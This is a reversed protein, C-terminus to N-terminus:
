QIHSTTQGSLSNVTELQELLMLQFILPNSMTLNFITNIGAGGYYFISLYGSPNDVDTYAVFLWYYTNAYVTPQSPITFIFWTSGQAAVSYNLSVALCVGPVGNNDSYIAM